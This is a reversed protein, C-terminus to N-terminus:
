FTIKDKNSKHMRTWVFKMKVSLRIFQKLQFVTKDKNYEHM